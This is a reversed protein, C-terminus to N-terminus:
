SAIALRRFGGTPTLAWGMPVDHEDGPVHPLVEDDHVVAVLAGGAGVLSRDYFGAGRGLRVGRTDVALAPVFVVDARTVADPGLRKGTPELLGFRGPALAEPGGAVAWELPSPSGPLTIPLLVRAGTAAVAALLPGTAPETGVSVYACVTSDPGIPVPSDGLHEALAPGVRARDEGAMADRRRILDDRLAKKSAAPDIM